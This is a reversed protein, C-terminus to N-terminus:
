RKRKAPAPKPPLPPFYQWGEVTKVLAAQPPRQAPLADLRQTRQRAYFEIAQTPPGVVLLVDDPSAPAAALLQPALEPQPDLPHRLLRWADPALGIVVAALVLRHWAWTFRDAVVIAALALAAELPLLYNITEARVLCLGLAYSLIWALSLSGLWRLAAKRPRLRWLALTLPASLLLLLPASRKAWKFYFAFHGDPDLENTRGLARGFLNNSWEQAFFGAGNWAAYLALWVAIALVPPWALRWAAAARQGKPLQWVAVSWAPLLALVFWSKSLAAGALCLGALWWRKVPGQQAWVGAAVAALAFGVFPADFSFFRAHFLWDGQLGLLACALVGAWPTECLFGLALLSALGLAAGLAAWLRYPWLAYPQGSLKASAGALWPLVPPKEYFPRGDLQLPWWDGRLAAGQAVRAYMGEDVDQLSPRGLSALVLALWLALGAL